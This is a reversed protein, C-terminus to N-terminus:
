YYYTAKSTPLGFGNISYAKSKPLGFGKIRRFFYCRIGTQFGLQAACRFYFFVRAVFYHILRRVGYWCAFGSDPVAPELRVLFLRRSRYQRRM